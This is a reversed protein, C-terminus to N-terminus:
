AVAPRAIAATTAQEVSGTGGIGRCRVSAWFLALLAFNRLHYADLLGSLRLGLLGRELVCFMIFFAILVSPVFRPLREGAFAARFVFYLAPLVGPCHQGWTLPSYLLITISVAACEWLIRPDNRDTIRNRFIWATAAAILLLIVKVVRGATVPTLTVVDFYLPEPPRDPILSDVPTEPRGPHGYPLHMLYRALATRLSLNGVRDLGLVTRSPDPDSVGHWVDRLWYGEAAAFNRAGMVTIPLCTFLITAATGGLAIKRQRKWFFYAVFAIPTCKLAAAMGIPVGALIDHGRMWLYIGFWTLLVLFSNVGLEVLDRHLFPSALLIALTTSWFVADPSLPWHRDALKKLILVLAIMGAVGIPFLFLMVRHMDFFTFPAHVFAWFPPYVRDFGPGYLFEGAVLRQALGYHLDFDGRPKRYLPIFRALVLISASAVVAAKLFSSHALRFRDLM